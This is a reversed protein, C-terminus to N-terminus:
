NWEKKGPMTCHLRKSISYVFIFFFMSLFDNLIRVNINFAWNGIFCNSLYVCNKWERKTISNKTERPWTIEAITKRGKIWQFKFKIRKCINIFQDDNIQFTYIFFFFWFYLSYGIKFSIIWRLYHILNIHYKM